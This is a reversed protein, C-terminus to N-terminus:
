RGLTIFYINILYSNFFGIILFSLLNIVGTISLVIKSSLFGNTPNEVIFNQFKLRFLLWEIIIVIIEILPYFYLLFLNYFAYAYYFILHVPPFTILNILLVIIFLNPKDLERYKLIDYLAGYEILINLIFFGVLALIIFLPYEWFAIPDVLRFPIGIVTNSLFGIILVFIIIYVYDRIRM